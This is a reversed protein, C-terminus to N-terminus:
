LYVSFSLNELARVWLLGYCGVQVQGPLFSCGVKNRVAGGDPIPYQVKGKSPTVFEACAM